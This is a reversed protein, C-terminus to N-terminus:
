EGLKHQSQQKPKSPQLTESEEKKRCEEGEEFNGETARFRPSILQQPGNKHGVPPRLDNCAATQGM